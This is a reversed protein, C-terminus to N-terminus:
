TSSSRTAMGAGTFSPAGYALKIRLPLAAPAPEPVEEDSALPAAAVGRREGLRAPNGLLRTGIRSRDPWRGALAQPPQHFLAQPPQHFLAQPPQHFLAQPPQHFLAQPPEHL